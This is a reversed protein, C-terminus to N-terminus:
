NNVFFSGGRQQHRLEELRRSTPMAQAQLCAEPVAEAMMGRQKAVVSMMLPLVGNRKVGSFFM